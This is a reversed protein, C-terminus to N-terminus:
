IFHEYFTLYKYIYKESITYNINHVYLSFLLSICSYGTPTGGNGVTVTTMGSVSVSGCSVYGGSGGPYNGSAGDGGGGIVFVRVLAVGPPPYFTGNSIFLQSGKTCNSQWM